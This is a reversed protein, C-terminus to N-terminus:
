IVNRQSNFSSNQELNKNVKNDFKLNSNTLIESHRVPTLIPKTRRLCKEDIQMKKEFEKFCNGPTM